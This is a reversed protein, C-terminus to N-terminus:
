AAFIIALSSISFLSHLIFFQQAVAENEMRWEELKMITRPTFADRGDM